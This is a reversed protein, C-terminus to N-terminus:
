KVEKRTRPDTIGVREFFFGPQREREWGLM